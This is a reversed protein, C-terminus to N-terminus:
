RHPRQSEEAHFSVIWDVVTMTLFYAYDTKISYHHGSQIHM